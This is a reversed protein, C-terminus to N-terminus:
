SKKLKGSVLANRKLDHRERQTIFVDAEDLLLICGWHHALRFIENLSRELSEATYGLDGCTIPFLPKKWKLAVAEATATKGVGPVGHLLIVVGKGKGRILDQTDIEVNTKKEAEVKDFHSKVLALILRKYKSNIELKEFAKENAELDANRVFRTNLQLFKRELVAYAFFRRPLLALFRGTPATRTDQKFQGLSDKELLSKADITETNDAVLIHDSQDLSMGGEEDWEIIPRSSKIFYSSGTHLKDDGALGPYSMVKWKPFANFTEQYDVLIDSEIHEPSLLRDGGSDDTLFVGTPSVTQTWGSYFGSRREILSVYTMGDSQAQAMIQDDELYSVPFVMLETVRKEGRFPPIPPFIVHVPAYSAGDYEIFHCLLSWPKEDSLGLPPKNETITTLRTQVIRLIQQSSPRPRFRDRGSTDRSVYVLDGPKFLYWLDDYRITRPLSSSTNCYRRSDPMIRSEMFDMFCTLEQLADKDECLKKMKSDWDQTEIDEANVVEDRPDTGGIARHSALKQINAMKEEMDRHRSVLVQFPRFFVMSQSASDKPEFCVQSLLEIVARSNIRIRRIWTQDELESNSDKFQKTAQGPIWTKSTDDKMKTVFNNFDDIDDHLSDGAVLVDICHLQQDDGAPRSQFQELNCERVESIIHRPKNTSEENREPRNKAGDALGSEKANKLARRRQRRKKARSKFMSWSFKRGGDSDYSCDTSYDEADSLGLLDNVTAALEDVGDSIRQISKLQDNRMKYSFAERLRDDKTTVPRAKAECANCRCISTEDNESAIDSTFVPEKKVTSMNADETTTTAVRDPLPSGPPAKSSSNAEEM